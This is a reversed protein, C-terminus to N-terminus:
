GVSAIFERVRAGVEDQATGFSMVTSVHNHGAFYALSPGKGDRLTVARALEYTPVALFAPDYEAVSLLLPTRSKGVHTLPSREAYRSPDDGFYAKLNPRLEGQFSYPGSMLIGAAVGAQGAPHFSPDFLYTAAHTAGASQGFLIIRAPDGGFSKANARAWAVAGAVDQAGAPWAHTPALRYNAVITLIGHGAFYNGLNVYFVGDLNKDGGVFGGGPIYVLVHEATGTPQYVDLKQRPDSGYAVDATVKVAASPKRILPAYLARTAGLIEEDFNPGMAAVKRGADATESAADKVQDLM